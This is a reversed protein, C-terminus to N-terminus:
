GITDFWNTISSAFQKEGYKIKLLEPGTHNVM